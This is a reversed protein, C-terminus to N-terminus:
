IWKSERRGNNKNEAAKDGASFEGWQDPPKRSLRVTFFIVPGFLAVAWIIWFLIGVSGSRVAMWQSYAFVIVMGLRVSVLMSALNQYVWKRNQETVKVSGTNWIRPFRLVITLGAFLVACLIVTFWLEEKGGWRDPQGDIGFHLPMERPLRPFKWLFWLLWAAMLGWSIRSIWRIYGNKEVQQIKQKM